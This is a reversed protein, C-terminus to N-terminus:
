LRDGAVKQRTGVSQRLRHRLQHFDRRGAVRLHCTMHEALAVPMRRRQTGIAWGHNQHMAEFARRLRLVDDAVGVLHPSSPSIDNAHVHAVAAARLPKRGGEVVGPEGAIDSSHQAVEDLAFSELADRQGAIGHTPVQHQLQGAFEARISRRGQARHDGDRRGDIKAGM